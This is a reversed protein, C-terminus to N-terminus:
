HLPPKRSIFRPGNFRQTVDAGMLRWPVSYVLIYECTIEHL